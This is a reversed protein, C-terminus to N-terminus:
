NPNDLRTGKIANYGCYWRIPNSVRADEPIVLWYAVAVIPESVDAETDPVDGVHLKLLEMLAKGGLSHKLVEIYRVLEM